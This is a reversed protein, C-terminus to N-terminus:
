KKKKKKEIPLKTDEETFQREGIKINGVGISKLHRALNTYSPTAGINPVASVVVARAYVKSCKKFFDRYLTLTSDLQHLAKESSTGKLEILVATPKEDKIIYLHDCKGTGEPVSKDPVIIGDDVHYHIVHKKATNELIYSKGKEECKVKPRADSSEICDARPNDCHSLHKGSLEKSVCEELKGCIM